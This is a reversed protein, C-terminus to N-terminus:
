GDKYGRALAYMERSESRSAQPKRLIVKNFAGRLSRIYEEFGEGQFVKVLFDGGPKLTRQAFDLALEALYIARPQDVTKIGSINPSMDCMVLDLRIGDLSALFADFVAQERFDGQVFTVGAIGDMPLIDLAVVRGREGVTQVAVQTWGGPAAGLDAVAMGPRLLRDKAQLEQLKYAARSRYGQAQARKVYPDQWQRQL